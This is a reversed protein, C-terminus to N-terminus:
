SGDAPLLAFSAILEPIVSTRSPEEQWPVKRRTPRVGLGGEVMEQWETVLARWDMWM